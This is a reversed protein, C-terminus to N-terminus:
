LALGSFLAGGSNSNSKHVTDSLRLATMGVNVQNKNKYDEETKAKLKFCDKKMHGPEKCYHCNFIFRSGVKLAANFETEKTDKLKLYEDVVKARVVNVTLEDSSLAGLASGLSKYSGPLSNLIFVARVVEPLEIELASLRDFLDEFEFLHREADGGEAMKMNTLKGLVICLASASSKQHYDKLNKWAQKSTTAKKILSLQNNDVSLIILSLAKGNKVKWSNIEKLNTTTGSTIVPDPCDTEIAEWLDHGFLLAKM